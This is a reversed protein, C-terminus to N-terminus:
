ARNWSMSITLTIAKAASKPLPPTFALQQNINGAFVATMLGIGGAVNGVGYAMPINTNTTYSGSSYSLPNVSGTLPSGVVSPGVADIACMATGNPYVATSLIQGLQDSNFLSSSVAFSHMDYLRCTYAYPVGALTVNGTTDSLNPSVTIKYFIVLQDQAGVTVPTAIGENTVLMRSFLGTTTNWGVGVESIDGVISGTTFVYQYTKTTAYTPAGLNVDSSSGSLATTALRIALSTQTYLPPTTGTGVHCYAMASPASYGLRNLGQDLILNKIWETEKVDGNSSTVVLKYEGSINLSM